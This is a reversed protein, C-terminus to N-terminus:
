ADPRVGTVFARIVEAALKPRREDDCLGNTEQRTDTLQTWCFGALGPADRVADFISGVRDAFGSADVAVSYGWADSQGRTDFSVGGFESLIVPLGPRPEGVWLRRGAPGIGSVLSDIATASGYREGLVHPDAEYDHITCLDSDTHEWGDNSVVPRTPDLARTLSAMARSYAQQAPDHALHQIGWSENLPVWVLISPHSIDRLVIESWERVLETVAVDSFEFAAATEGWVALGLVDCWYLYRPDEVKQHVRATNFGLSLTLEVEARLADGSPAALHTAPWYGQSLVARTRLPRDNLLLEGRAVQVSRMGLYSDVEDIRRGANDSLVIEADILTPSAPSWLLDEYAQGNRQRPLPVVLDIAETTASTTATGLVEDDHRLTVTLTSGPAPVHSLRATVEVRAAPIDSRWTLRAVHVRAVPELWVPQWIGTTRHYWIVHPDDRWDQKGRPQEVDHARDIARVVITHDGGATLAHTIDASVPTQGGVHHAVHTGDVWVDAEHDVAGLHLLVHRGGSRLALIDDDTVVRRYWVIDHPETEGIGSAPSEPPFPVTINRGLTTRGLHWGAQLGTGDDDFAFDWTGDLSVWDARVLQPRPHDGRDTVPTRPRASTM